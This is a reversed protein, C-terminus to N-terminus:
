DVVEVGLPGKSCQIEVQHGNRNVLLSVKGVGWNHRKIADQLEAVTSISTDGYRVIRDQARLGSAGANSGIQVNTITVGDGPLTYINPDIVPAQQIGIRPKSQTDTDAKNESLERHAQGVQVWHVLATIVSASELRQYELAFREAARVTQEPFALRVLFPHDRAQQCYLYDSHLADLRQRRLTAGVSVWAVALM